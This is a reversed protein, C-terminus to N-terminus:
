CHETLRPSPNNLAEILTDYADQYKLWGYLKVVHYHAGYDNHAEEQWTELLAAPTEEPYSELLTQISLYCRGFDTHYLERVAFELTPKQDYEHVLEINKPHDLIVNDLCSELDSFTLDGATFGDNALLRIGRLRFVLSVPCRAIAPIPM